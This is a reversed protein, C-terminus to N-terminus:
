VYDIREEPFPHTDKGAQVLLQRLKKEYYKHVGSRNILGKMWFDERMQKYADLFLQVRQIRTKRIGDLTRKVEVPHPIRQMGTRQNLNNSSTLNDENEFGVYHNLNQSQTESVDNHM